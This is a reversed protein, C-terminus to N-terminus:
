GGALHGHKRLGDDYTCGADMLANRESASRTKGQQADLYGLDTDKM